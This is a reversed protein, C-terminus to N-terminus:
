GPLHPRAAVGGDDRSWRDGSRSRSTRALASVSRGTASTKWAEGGQHHGHRTKEPPSTPRRRRSRDRARRAGTSARIEKSGRIFGSDLVPAGAARLRWWRRAHAHRGTPLYVRHASRRLDDDDGDDRCEDADRDPNCGSASRASAKVRRMVCTPRPKGPRPLSTERHRVTPAVGDRRLVAAAVVVRETSDVVLAWKAGGGWVGYCALSARRVSSTPASAVPQAVCITRGWQGRSHWGWCGVWCLRLM